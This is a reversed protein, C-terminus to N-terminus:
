QIELLEKLKSIAEQPTEVGYIKDYRRDDLKQNAIKSSWGKVSSLAIIPKQYIWAFCIESLTGAKGSIALCADGSLVVVINRAQSFPCPIVIDVYKNAASKETHPIIGITLGNEEKVGKCVAEMVGSLGGCAVIFKNQALLRGIEFTKKETDKDIESAGIVSVVGNFDKKIDFNM